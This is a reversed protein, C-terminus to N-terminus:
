KAYVRVVRDIGAADLVRLAQGACNEVWTKGGIEQVQKSTRLIVAIGSSDMFTVSSMDLVCQKPLNEDVLEDISKMVSGAVNHDLEGVLM